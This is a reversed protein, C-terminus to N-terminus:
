RLEELSMENVQDIVSLFARTSREMGEAPVLEPIDLTTHYIVHDIIHFGPAQRTLKPKSNMVTYISVGNERLTDTVIKVFRESGLANWRFAGIANSTMLDDNYWYLQTQSPHELTLAIAVNDWDYNREFLKLGVEGHHHDPFLLFVLTRPRQERPLAAYHRAIELGSALGAANDMSGQFFGDTHAAIVIEETSTGELRAIVNATKVNKRIEIDLKLSIDVRAGSGLRDRLLFGEDQNITILPIGYKASPAGLPNFRGDGPVAMVNIIMAAGLESARENANFIRARKSASHSRGGPVFTSYIVVAKGKVDRGLFDPEAGIGVWVAEATIGEAPTAATEGVPFASKLVTKEGAESWSAQWDLPTWDDPIVFPVRTTEFGLREFETKMLDMTQSDYVTGPLRGWYKDGEAQSRLSIASIDRVWQKMRAGSVGQYVVQDEVLPWDPYEADEVALAQLDRPLGQGYTKTKGQDSAASNGGASLFLMVTLIM